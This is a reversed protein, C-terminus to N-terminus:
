KYCNPCQHVGEHGVIGGCQLWCDPCVWRCREKDWWDTEAETM